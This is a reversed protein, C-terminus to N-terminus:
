HPLHFLGNFFRGALEAYAGLRGSGGERSADVLKLSLIIEKQRSLAIECLRKSHARLLPELEARYRSMFFVVLLFSGSTVIPFCSVTNGWVAKLSEGFGDSSQQYYKDARLDIDVCEGQQVVHRIVSDSIPVVELMMELAMSAACRRFMASNRSALNIATEMAVDDLLVFDMDKAAASFMLGELVDKNAVMIRLYEYLERNTDYCARRVAAVIRENLWNYGVSFVEKSLLELFESNAFKLMTPIQFTISSYSGMDTLRVTLTRMKRYGEDVDPSVVLMAVTLKKEECLIDASEIKVPVGSSKFSFKGCGLTDCGQFICDAYRAILRKLEEILYFDVQDPLASINEISTELFTKDLYDLLVIKENQLRDFLDM